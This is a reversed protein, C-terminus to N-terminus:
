REDEKPPEPMPMWFVIDNAKHPEDGVVWLENGAKDRHYSRWGATVMGHGNCVLVRLQKEPLGEKVNVWRTKVQSAAQLLEELTASDKGCLAKSVQSATSELRQIYALQDKILKTLCDSNECILGSGNYPCGVCDDPFLVTCCEAGKKIEDPSKM